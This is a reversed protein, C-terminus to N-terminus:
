KVNFNNIEPYDEPPVVLINNDIGKLHKNLFATTYTKLLNSMREENITGCADPINRIFDGMCMDTYNYHRAGDITFTLVNSLKDWVEKYTIVDQAKKFSFIIMWPKTLGKLLVSGHNVGDLGIAADIIDLKQLALSAVGGGLSFGLHGISELDITNNFYIGNYGHLKEIVFKTDEVATEVRSELYQVGKIGLEPDNIDFGPNHIIKYLGNVYVNMDLYTNSVAAVVYGQKVLHEVIATNENRDGSLGPHYIVLPFQKNAVVIPAYLTATSRVPDECAYRSSAFELPQLFINLFDCSPISDKFRSPPTENWFTPYYVDVVVTRFDFINATLIEPRSYDIFTFRIQGVNYATSGNKNESINQYTNEETTGSDMECGNFLLICSCLILIIKIVWGEKVRLLNIKIHRSNYSHISKFQLIIKKWADSVIGFFKM